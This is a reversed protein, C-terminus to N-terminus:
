GQETLIYSPQDPYEELKQRLSRIYIRIYQINTEAPWIQGLIFSHTLVKGTNSMLLSLLDFEKPALKVEKGDRRVLRKAPDLVIGGRQIVSFNDGALASRRLQARIRALFEETAFPKTVYDDAGLDLADVKKREQGNASLAIVPFKLGLTRL